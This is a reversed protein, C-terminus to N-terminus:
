KSLHAFTLFFILGRDQTASRVGTEWYYRFTLLGAWQGRARLLADDGGAGIGLSSQESTDATRSTAETRMLDTGYTETFANPLQEVRGCRGPPTHM